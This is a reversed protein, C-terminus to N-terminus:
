DALQLLQKRFYIRNYGDESRRDFEEYGFKPYITLNTAMREHTYLQVEPLNQERAQQEAFEVLKRGLGQKQASPRVAINEILLHDDKLHLVLVADVGRTGEIIYVAGQGILEDYNAQMPAPRRGVIGVYTAYAVNVCRLLNTKDEPTALRIEAESM